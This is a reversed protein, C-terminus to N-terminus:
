VCSQKTGYRNNVYQVFHTMKEFGSVYLDVVYTCHLNCCHWDSMCTLEYVIAVM